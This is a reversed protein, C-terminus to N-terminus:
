SVPIKGDAQGELFGEQGTDPLEVRGEPNERHIFPNLFDRSLVPLLMVVVLVAM